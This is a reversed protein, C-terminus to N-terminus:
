TKTAAEMFANQTTEQEEREDYEEKKTLEKAGV